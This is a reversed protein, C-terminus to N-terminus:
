YNPLSRPQGLSALEGVAAASDAYRLRYCPIQQALRFLEAINLGGQSEGLTQTALAQAASVVTLPMMVPRTVDRAYELFVVAAVPVPSSAVRDPSITALAKPQVLFDFWDQDFGLPV